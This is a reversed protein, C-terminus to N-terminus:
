SKQRLSKGWGVSAPRQRRAYCGHKRGSELFRLLLAQMRLSMEGIEDLFITGRHAVEILEQRDRHADTFSGRVHGFIASELLNDPIAARNVTVLQAQARRSRRHVLGAIVEKGVGSEGTILV